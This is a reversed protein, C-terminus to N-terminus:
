GFRFLLMRVEEEEEETYEWLWARAREGKVSDSSVEAESGGRLLM